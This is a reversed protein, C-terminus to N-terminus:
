APLKHSIKLHARFSVGRKSRKERNEIDGFSIESKIVILAVATEMKESISDSILHGLHHGEKVTIRGPM